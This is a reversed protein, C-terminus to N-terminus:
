KCNISYELNFTPATGALVVLFRMFKQIGGQVLSSAALTGNTYTTVATTAQSGSLTAWSGTLTTTATTAQPFHIRDTWRTAAVNGDPSDQFYVDMTAATGSVFQQIVDVRCTQVEPGGGASMNGMAVTGASATNPNPVGGQFGMDGVFLGPCSYITTCTINSTAGSVSGNPIVPADSSGGNSNQGTLYVVLPGGNGISNPYTLVNGYGGAVGPIVNGANGIALGPRPNQLVGPNEVYMTNVLGSNGDIGAVVLPNFGVYTTGQPVPGQVFANPSSFTGFVAQVDINTTNCGSTLVIFVAVKTAVIPTTTLAVTGNAPLVVPQSNGFASSGIQVQVSQWAAPTSNFSNLSSNGTSAVSVTLGSNCANATDNTIFLRLANSPPNINMIFTNLGTNTLLNPNVPTNSLIFATAGSYSIVQENGQSVLQASALSPLLLALLLLLKKMAPM